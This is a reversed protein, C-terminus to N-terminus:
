APRPWNKRSPPSSPSPISCRTSRSRREQVGALVEQERLPIGLKEYTACCNPISRTSRNRGTRDSKPAAYYYADQYDIKRIICSPGIRSTM